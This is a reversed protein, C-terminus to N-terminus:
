RRRHAGANFRVTTVVFDMKLRWVRKLSHLEDDPFSLPNEIKRNRWCTRKLGGGEDSISKFIRVKSDFVGIQPM